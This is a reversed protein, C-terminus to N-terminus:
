RGAQRPREVLFTWVCSEAKDKEREAASLGTAFNTTSTVCFWGALNGPSQQKKIVEWEQDRSPNLILCGRMRNNQGVDFSNYKVFDEIQWAAARHKMQWATMALDRDICGVEVPYPSNFHIIEGVELAHAPAALAIMNAIAFLAIRKWLRKM